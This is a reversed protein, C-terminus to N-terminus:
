VSVAGSTRKRGRYNTLYNTTAVLDTYMELVQAATLTTTPMIFVDDLLGTFFGGNTGATNDCGIRVYNTAAYSPTVVSATTSVQVGDIYIFANNSSDRTAVCHHWQGNCHAANLGGGNCYSESTNALRFVMGQTADMYLVFGKAAANASYSQFIRMSTATTSTKFWFGISFATTPHFDAHDVASYAASSGLSLGYGFKGSATEAPSAIATLTHSNGSDDTTLAGSNFRYYAKCLSQFVGAFIEPM